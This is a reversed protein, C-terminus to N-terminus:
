LRKFNDIQYTVEDDAVMESVDIYVDSPIGAEDSWNIELRHAAQTQAQQIRRMIVALDPVEDGIWSLPIAKGSNSHVARYPAGNRVEIDFPGTFQQHCFCEQTVRMTYHEPVQAPSPALWSCGATMSLILMLYNNKM